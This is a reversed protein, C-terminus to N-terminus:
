HKNGFGRSGTAQESESIEVDDVVGAVCDIPDVAAAAAADDNGREDVVQMMMNNDRTVRTVATKICLDSSEGHAFSSFM